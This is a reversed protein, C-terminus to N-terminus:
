VAQLPAQPEPSSSVDVVVSGRKHHSDVRAHADAIREFSFHSDIVPRYQGREAIEALYLMDERLETSVGAIVRHSSARGQFPASLLDGLSAVMLLLRGRSRLVRRCAAYSAAGVCDMIVDYTDGGSTYDTQAYDIIHGAGLGTVLAANGASCVATVEAGLVRGIQVAASGVAGAAGVVLLREGPQLAAKARLYCVATLGGFCLASAESFTLASPKAIVKGAAPMITYEAHAGLTAGPMAVVPDGVRWESVGAGLEDVIGALETGLVPQRPGSWGMALRMPTRMGAPVDSSRIRWDGSSVTTAVVRISVEGAKPIPRPVDRIEVQEPGGYRKVCAARMMAM